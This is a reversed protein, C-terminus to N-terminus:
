VGQFDPRGDPTRPAKWGAAPPSATAPQQAMLPVSAGLGIMALSAVYSKVNM